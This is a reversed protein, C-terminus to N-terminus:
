SLSLIGSLILAELPWIIGHSFTEGKLVSIFCRFWFNNKTKDVLSIVPPFYCSFSILSASQFSFFAQRHPLRNFVCQFQDLFRVVECAMKWASDGSMLPWHLTRLVWFSIREAWTFKTVEWTSVASFLERALLYLATGMHWNPSREKKKKSNKNRKRLFSSLYVREVSWYLWQFSARFQFKWWYFSCWDGNLSLFGPDYVCRSQKTWYEESYLVRQPIWGLNISM